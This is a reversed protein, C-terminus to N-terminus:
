GLDRLVLPAGIEAGDLICLSTSQGISPFQDLWRQAIPLGAQVGASLRLALPTM